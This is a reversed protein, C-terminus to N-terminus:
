SFHKFICRQIFLHESSHEHNLVMDNEERESIADRVREM